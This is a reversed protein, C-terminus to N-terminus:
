NIHFTGSQGREARGGDPIIVIRAAGTASAPLTVVVRGNRVRGVAIPEFGGPRTIVARGPLAPAVRVAITSGAVAGRPRTVTSRAVVTLTPSSLGGATARITTTAGIPVSAAFAGTDDTATSTTWTRTGTAVLAVPVGAAAGLVQGHLVATGGGVLRRPGALRVGTIGTAGVDTTTACTAVPVDAGYDATDPSAGGPARDVWDGGGALEGDSTLAFPSSIVTGATAGFWAPIDISVIGAGEEVVARVVQGASFALLAKGAATCTAPVRTGIAIPM